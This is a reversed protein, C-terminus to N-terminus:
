EGNELVNLIDEVKNRLVSRFVDIMNQLLDHNSESDVYANKETSCQSIYEKSYGIKESVIKLLGKPAVKLLKSLEDKKGKLTTGSKM